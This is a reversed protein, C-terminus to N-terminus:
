DISIALDVFLLMLLFCLFSSSAKPVSSHENSSEFPVLYQIYSHFGDIVTSVTCNSITPKENQSSDVATASNYRRRRQRLMQSVRVTSNHARTSKLVDRQNQHPIV